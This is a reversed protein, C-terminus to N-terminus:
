FSKTMQILSINNSFAILSTAIFVDGFANNINLIHCQKNVIEKINPLTPSYTVSFPKINERLTKTPQLHNKKVNRLLNNLWTM